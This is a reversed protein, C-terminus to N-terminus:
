PRGVWLTIQIKGTSTPIERQYDKWERVDMNENYAFEFNEDESSITILKRNSPYSNETEGYINAFYDELDESVNAKDFETENIRFEEAAFYNQIVEYVTTNYERSSELTRDINQHLIYTFFSQDQVEVFEADLSTEINEEKVPNDNGMTMLFLMAVSMM